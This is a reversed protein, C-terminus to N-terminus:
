NPPPQAAPLAAEVEPSRRKTTTTASLPDAELNVFGLKQRGIGAKQRAQSIGRLSRAGCQIPVTLMLKPKGTFSM